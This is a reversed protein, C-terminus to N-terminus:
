YRQKLRMELGTECFDQKENLGYPLVRHIILYTEEAGGSSLYVFGKKAIHLTYAACVARSIRRAAHRWLCPLYQQLVHLLLGNLLSLRLPRQRWEKQESSGLVIVSADSEPREAHSM